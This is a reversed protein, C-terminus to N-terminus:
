AQKEIELQLETVFQGPEDALYTPPLDFGLGDASYSLYVERIPGTMRFGNSEIWGLLANYAQYLSGYSGKHVVCAAQAIRQLEIVRISDTGPIAFKLPVVVEADINEDRYEPDHYISMPPKDARAQFRAVYRELQEFMYTIRDDDPAVERRTAALMPEIARVVIDDRDTNTQDTMQSIRAELREMRLREALVQQEVEARKLKLMGLLQGAPLDEALMDAIQELSFGLDRLALIRNLRPLQDATYYRYSTAPDVHSPELLGLQDYHRLMRVSVRSLKSFEGIRFM